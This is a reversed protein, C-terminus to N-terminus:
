NRANSSLVTSRDMLGKEQVFRRIRHRQLTWGHWHDLDHMVSQSLEHVAEELRGDLCGERPDDQTRRHEQLSWLAPLVDAGLSSLYSLDLSADTARGTWQRCRPVNYGAIMADFPMFCCVLLLVATTWGNMRILWANSRQWAIRCVIWVLGIAVLSMWLGAALRWRTLQYAEVYLDLRWLSGIVLLVNQALWLYMLRRAVQGADVGPRFTWLVFAAALLATVILPYAGRHAYVAYTMGEPLAAGGWLYFGDMVTQIAFVANFLALCRVRLGGGTHHDFSEFANVRWPKLVFPSRVGRRRMALLAWIWSAAVIWFMMRYVDLHWPWSEIWAVCQDLADSLIPNAIAFLAVFGLSLILPPAWRMLWRGTRPPLGRRARVVAVRHMDRYIWIWGRCILGVWSRLWERPREPWGARRGVAMAMCWCFALALPLGSPEEILAAVLLPLVGWAFVGRRGRLSKGGRWAFALGMLLLFIAATVGLKQDYFLTDALVVLMAVLLAVGGYRRSWPM